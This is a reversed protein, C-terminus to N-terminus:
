DEESDADPLADAKFQALNEKLDSVGAAERYRPHEIRHSLKDTYATVTGVRMNPPLGLVPVVDAVAGDLSGNMPHAIAAGGRIQAWNASVKPAGTLPPSAATTLATKVIVFV